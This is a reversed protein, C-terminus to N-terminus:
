VTAPTYVRALLEKDLEMLGKPDHGFLEFKGLMDEANKEEEGQESVFWALFQQTRYDHEEHTVTVIEYISNTIFREHAIVLNFIAPYETEKVQPQAIAELAVQENNDLLYDVIKMAHEQEEKAQVRFYNAYGALGQHNFFNAIDLYLYASFFERNIQRNLLDIIKKNLM